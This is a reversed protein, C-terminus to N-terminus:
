AMLEAIPRGSPVLPTPRGSHDNITTKEADIGLHHYITSLFDGPTSIREIADEGRKDSAGIIGGTQLGGGAWLNTFARPWHDRGPQVVGTPASAEGGGSSAAYSIKPTRGFEGSVVVLVRKHLGRAYVDEILASVAQDFAHARFRLAEFVNHNVAHDDWNAVRGCQPGDLCSTIIEVGSEVLRRALLLQQGWRHRGYRDRTRADEKSLDFATRTQPSTLLTMAQTEFQDLAQMEGSADVSRELNDLSRRLAVRDGLRAVKAPDALGINPVEFDPRSPDGLVSFPSYAAGVYGPGAITFSDYNVIPNVGVYNPLPSSRPTRSRLYNAVTMWDPLLPKPKDRPDTDGSLMQLSGAPHGGGTHAMSRLLTFKDAIKAQLPLLETLHLGPVNTPLPKFPGRYESGADPKPDYTDLHSCGGRLWVLIVATKERTPASAAEARLRLLGPWSLSAFGTLGVRM